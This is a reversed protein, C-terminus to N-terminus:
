FTTYIDTNKHQQKLDIKTYKYLFTDTLRHPGYIYIYRILGHM